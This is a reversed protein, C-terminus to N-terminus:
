RLLNFILGKEGQEIPTRSPGTATGFMTHRDLRKRPAGHGTGAPRSWRKSRRVYAAPDAAIM